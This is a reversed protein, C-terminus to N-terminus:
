LLQKGYLCFIAAHSLSSSQMCANAYHPLAIKLRELISVQPVESLDAYVVDDEACACCYIGQWIYVSSAMGECMHYINSHYCQELHYNVPM